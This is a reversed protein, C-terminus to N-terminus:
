PAPFRCRVIFSVHVETEWDDSIAMTEAHENYILDVTVASSSLRERAPSVIVDAGDVLDGTFLALLEAALDSPVCGPLVRDLLLQCRVPVNWIEQCEEFAQEPDGDGHLLICSSKHEGVENTLFLSFGKPILHDAPAKANSPWAPWADFPAGPGGRILAEMRKLLAYTNPSQYYSPM